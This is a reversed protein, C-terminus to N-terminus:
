CPHYMVHNEKHTDNFALERSYLALALRRSTLDQYEPSESLLIQLSNGLRIDKRAVHTRTAYSSLSAMYTISPMPRAFFAAPQGLLPPPTLTPDPGITGVTFQLLLRGADAERTTLTTCIGYQSLGVLAPGSTRGRAYSREPKITLIGRTVSSM